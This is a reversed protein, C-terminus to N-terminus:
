CQTASIFQVKIPILQSLDHYVRSKLTYVCGVRLQITRKITTVVLRSQKKFM